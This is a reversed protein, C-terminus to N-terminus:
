PQGGPRPASGCATPLPATPAPAPRAQIPVAQRALWGSVAAVDAQDLQRAVEAMCDPAHARRQGTRWAGLQGNVYDRPLGLLGPTAPEM